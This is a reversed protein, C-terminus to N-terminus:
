PIIKIVAQLEDYSKMDSRTQYRYLIMKGVSQSNLFYTKKFAKLRTQMSILM